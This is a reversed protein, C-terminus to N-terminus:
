LLPDKTKAVTIIKFGAYSFVEMPGAFDLVEVGDYLYFCVTIKQEKSLQENKEILTMGCHSCLGPHQYTATDCPHNCPPCVYTAGYVGTFTFCSIFFILILLQKM